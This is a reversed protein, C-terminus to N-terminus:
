GPFSISAGALRWCSMDKTSHAAFVAAIFYNTEQPAPMGAQRRYVRTIFYAGRRDQKSINLVPSSAREVLSDCSM